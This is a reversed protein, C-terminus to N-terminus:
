LKVPPAPPAQGQEPKTWGECPQHQVASREEEEDVKMWMNLSTLELETVDGQLARRIRQRLRTATIWDSISTVVIVAVYIALETADM